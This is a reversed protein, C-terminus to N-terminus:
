LEIVGTDEANTAQLRLRVPCENELFILDDADLRFWEGHTRKDGFAAHLISEFAMESGKVIGYAFRITLTYASDKQLQALRRNLHQTVSIKYLDTVSSHIIYLFMDPTRVADHFRREIRQRSSASDNM